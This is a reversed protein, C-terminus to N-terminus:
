RLDTWATAGIADVGGIGRSEHREDDVDDDTHDAERDIYIASGLRGDRFSNHDSDGILASGIQEGDAGVHHVVNYGADRFLLAAGIVRITGNEITVHDHGENLIGAFVTGGSITHGRLDLTIGSAGITLLTGPEGCNLDADLRTDTTIVQGCAVPQKKALAAGAGVTLLAAAMAAPMTVVALWRRKTM